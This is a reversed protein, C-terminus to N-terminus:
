SRRNVLVIGAGVLSAATHGLGAYVFVFEGGFLLGAALGPWLTGDREFPSTGRSRAWTFLLLTAIVSRLGSQMVLSIDAATLKITVQQFGWLGTLLLMLLFARADLPRREDAANEFELARRASLSM